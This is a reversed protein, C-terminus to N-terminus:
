IVVITICVQQLHSYQKLTNQAQVAVQAANIFATPGGKCEMHTIPAMTAVVPLADKREQHGVLASKFSTTVMALTDADINRCQELQRTFRAKWLEASRNEIYSATPELAEARKQLQASASLRTKEWSSELIDAAARCILAHDSAISPDISLNLSANIKSSPQRSATHTQHLKQTTLSSDTCKSTTIPPNPTVKRLPFRQTAVHATSPYQPARLTTHKM